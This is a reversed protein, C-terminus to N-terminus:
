TPAVPADSNFFTALVRHIQGIKDFDRAIIEAKLLFIFFFTVCYLWRREACSWHLVYYGIHYGHTKNFSSYFTRLCAIKVRANVCFHNQLDSHLSVARERGCCSIASAMVASPSLRRGGQIFVVVKKGEDRLVKRLPRRLCRATSLPLAPPPMVVSALVAVFLLRAEPTCLVVVSLSSCSLQHSHHVCVHAQWCQLWIVHDLRISCDNSGLVTTLIDEPTSHKGQVQRWYEWWSETWVESALEQQYIKQSSRGFM